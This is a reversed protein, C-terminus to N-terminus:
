EDTPLPFAEPHDAIATLDSAIAAAPQSGPFLALLRGEPGILYFAPAASETTGAGGPPSAGLAGGLRQIETEDGSLLRLAPSLRAFDRALGLDRAQAAVLALQLMEQLEPRDALRNYVDIMRNVALHGPKSGLNGFAVLTWQELLDDVTFPLGQSDLLRFGPLAVPPRLLVGEIAPPAANGYKYQNGWYYGALFLGIAAAFMLIRAVPGRPNRVLM